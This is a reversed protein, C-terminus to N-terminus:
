RDKILTTVSSRPPDDTGRLCGEGKIEGLAERGERMFSQPLM